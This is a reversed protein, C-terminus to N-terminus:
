LFWSYSGVDVANLVNPTHRDTWLPDGMHGNGMICQVEIYLAGGWEGLCSVWPGRGRSGLGMLRNMLGPIMGVLRGGGGSTYHLHATHMRSSHEHRSGM